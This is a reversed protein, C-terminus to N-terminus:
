EDWSTWIVEYPDYKCEYEFWEAFEPDDDPDIESSIVVHTPFDCSQAFEIAEEATLFSDVCEIEEYDDPDCEYVRYRILDEYNTNSEDSGKIDNVYDLYIQFDAETVDFGNAAAVQKFDEFESEDFEEGLDCTEYALDRLFDSYYEDSSSKIYRKM